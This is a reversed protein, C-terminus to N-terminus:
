YFIIVRRPNATLLFLRYLFRSLSHNFNLLLVSFYKRFAFLLPLLCFPALPIQKTESALTLQFAARFPYSSIHSSLRRM